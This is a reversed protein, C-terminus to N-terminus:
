FIADEDTIYYTLTDEGAGGGGVCQNLLIRSFEYSNTFNLLFFNLVVTM